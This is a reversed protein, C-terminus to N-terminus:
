KKWVERDLQQRLFDSSWVLKVANMAETLLLSRMDGICEELVSRDSYSQLCSLIEDRTIPYRVLDRM